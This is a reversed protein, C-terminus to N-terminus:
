HPYRCGPGLGGEWQSDHSYGNENEQVLTNFQCNEFGLWEVVDNIVSVDESWEVIDLLKASNDGLLFSLETLFDNERKLKDRVESRKLGNVKEHLHKKMAMSQRIYRSNINIIFRSCPFNETLFKAAEKPTWLLHDESQLRIEKMGLIMRAEDDIEQGASLYDNDDDNNDINIFPELNPPNLTTLFNQMVCSFSGIPMANHKFAGNEVADHLFLGDGMTANDVFNRPHDELITKLVESAQFLVNYNEGSLRINPLENFMRLLSTSGSRGTALIFLFRRNCPACIPSNHCKASPCWSKEYPNLNNFPRLALRNSTLSPSAVLTDSNSTSSSGANRLIERLLKMM